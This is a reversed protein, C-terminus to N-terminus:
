PNGIDGERSDLCELFTRIHSRLRSIEEQIDYKDVYMALEQLIRQEMNEIKQTGVLDTIRKQMALYLEHKFPEIYQEVNGIAPLISNMSNKLVEKIDDAEAFMSLQAQKLAGSLCENLIDNLLPDEDLNNQTEIVGPEALLFEMSVESSLELAKQAQVIIDYYKKLKLTNLHLMPERKDSINLRLEVTGRSIYEPITKRLHYEFFGLERPLYLKLDLYRGNVSKIEIECEINERGVRYKGYGTMSKM